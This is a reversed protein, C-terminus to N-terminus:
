QHHPSERVTINFAIRSLKHGCLVFKRSLENKAGIFVVVGCFVTKLIM